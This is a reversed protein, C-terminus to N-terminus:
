SGSVLPKTWVLSYRWGVHRRYRVGPLARVRVPMGDPGSHRRWLHALHAALGLAGFVRDGSTADRAPGIVVLRGGPRPLRTV